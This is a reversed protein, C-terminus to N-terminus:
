IVSVHGCRGCTRLREESRLAATGQAVVDRRDGAERQVEYLQGDCEECYWVWRDIEHPRRKREIVFTLSGEERRPSHPVGAPMLFLEGPKLVALARRGSPEVYHLHLEGDLQNFIEDGPNIHFETRPNPGRTVFAWFDSDEWITRIRGWDEDSDIWQRLNFAHLHPFM